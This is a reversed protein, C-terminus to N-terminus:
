IARTLNTTKRTAARHQAPVSDRVAQTTTTETGMPNSPAVFATRIAGWTAICCLTVSLLAVWPQWKSPSFIKM